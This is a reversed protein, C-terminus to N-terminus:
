WKSEDGLRGIYFVDDFTINGEIYENMFDLLKAQTPASVGMTRNTIKSLSVPNIGVRDKAIVKLDIGHVEKIKGLYRRLNDKAFTGVRMEEM